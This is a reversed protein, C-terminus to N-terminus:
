PCVSSSVHSVHGFCFHSELRHISLYASCSVPCSKPLAMTVGLVGLRRSGAVSINAVSVGAEEVRRSAIPGLRRSVTAPADAVAVLVGSQRSVTPGLRRPMSTAAVRRSVMPGLRHSVTAPINAVVQTAGGLRRSGNAAVSAVAVAAELSPSVVVSNNVALM